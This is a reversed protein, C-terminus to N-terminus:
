HHVLFPKEELIKNVLAPKPEEWDAECLISIGPLNDKILCSCDASLFDIMLNINDESIGRALLPELARFRGFVGFLMPEHIDKLDNEVNLLLSVFHKEEASNRDLEIISIISGYHSNDITNKLVKLGNEDKEKNGSRLFVMAALKGNMLETIIETRLPSLEINRLASYDSYESFLRNNYYLAYYPKEIGDEEVSKFLMNAAKIRNELEQNQRVVPEPIDGNHHYVLLYRDSVSNILFWESVKTTCALSLVAAIILIKFYNSKM